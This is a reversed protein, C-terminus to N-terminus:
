KWLSHYFPHNRGGSLCIQRILCFFCHLVLFFVVLYSLLLLAFVDNKLKVHLFPCSFLTQDLLANRLFADVFIMYTYKFVLQTKDQKHM